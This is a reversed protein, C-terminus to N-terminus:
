AEMPAAEQVKEPFCEPFKGVAADITWDELELEVMRRLGSKIEGSTVLRTIAGITGHANRMGIFGTNSYGRERARRLGEDIFSELERRAEEM